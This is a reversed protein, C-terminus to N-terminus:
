NLIAEIKIIINTAQKENPKPGIGKTKIPSTGGGLTLKRSNANM